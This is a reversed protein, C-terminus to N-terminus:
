DLAAEDNGELALGVQYPVSTIVIGPRFMLALRLLVATQAHLVNHWTHRPVFQPVVITIIENPQRQDAVYRIYELLPELLLRYPSDLVVLRVGSGWLGWKKEVDEADEPNTSVHVATLDDSLRRAYRLAALTGRHLGSVPLIVRHRAIRPPAGYNVLSLQRSLDAYHRHIAVFVGVLVPIVILVVWAGDKFKTSAFVLTVVATLVAGVGNVIMKLKWRGDFHLTSGKERLEAGPALHGSKWWHRAMGTQSLTFSLFVGIAYVSHPRLREGPLDRHSRLRRPCPRRYRPFLRPPKWPLHAPPAPIRRGGPTGRAQPLRRLGTNAAMVPLRTTGGILAMYLAGRGGFTTRAIQSIVTEQESPVAGIHIALYTIGLFLVGLIASMWILTIGANRSRPERFATIGNSIAEVGTLATTGSSFAPPPPLSHNRRSGHTELLPPNPVSEFIAALARVVGTAVALAM